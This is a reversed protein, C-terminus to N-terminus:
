CQSASEVKCPSDRCCSQPGRTMEEQSESFCERHGTQAAGTAKMRLSLQKKNNSAQSYFAFSYGTLVSSGLSLM